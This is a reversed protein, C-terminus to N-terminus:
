GTIAPSGAGVLAGASVTRCRVQAEQVAKLCLDGRIGALDGEFGWIWPSQLGPVGGAIFWILVDGTEPAET